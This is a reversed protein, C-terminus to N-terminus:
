IQTKLQSSFFSIHNHRNKILSFSFLGFPSTLLRMIPTSGTVSHCVNPDAGHSLLFHATNMLLESCAVGLPYDGTEPDAENVNEGAEIRKKYAQHAGISILM